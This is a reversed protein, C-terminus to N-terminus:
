GFIKKVLTCGLGPESDAYLTGSQLKVSGQFPDDILDLHGDLDAYRLHPQSCAFHLAAAIALASEDMCGIMVGIGASAAIASIQRAESIGGVKMLKINITDAYQNKAIQLMEAKTTLSEDAMIPVYSERKIKELWDLNQHPTPQEIFELKASQTEKAFRIAQEVTYGQNADFRLAMFDGVAERVKRIRIIDTELNKGGKIKLASFGQHAYEIARRITEDEPMIGITVSTKIQQRFGGLIKWLPQNAAKGLIDHLAMDVAAQSAPNNPLATKIRELLLSLRLPDSNLILDPIVTRLNNLVIESTEGTVFEDPAACGFGVLPTDTRVMLFVNKISEYSEYAIAYPQSLPMEVAVAEIKTIKM